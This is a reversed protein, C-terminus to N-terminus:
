ENILVELEQIRKRKVEAEKYLWILMDYPTAGNDCLEQLTHLRRYKQELRTYDVDFWKVLHEYEYKANQLELEHKPQEPETGKIYRKNNHAYVIMDANEVVNAENYYGHMKAIRESNTSRGITNDSLREYYIM